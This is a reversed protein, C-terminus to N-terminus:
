LGDSVPCIQHLLLEVVGTSPKIPEPYNYVPSWKFCHFTSNGFKRLLTLLMKSWFVSDTQHSHLHLSLVCQLILHNIVTM